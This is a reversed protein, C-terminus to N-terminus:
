VGGLALAAGTVIGVLLAPARRRRPEPTDLTREARRVLRATVLENPEAAEAAARLTERYDNM